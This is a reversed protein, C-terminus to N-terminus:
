CKAPTEMCWSEPLPEKQQSHELFVIRLRPDFVHVIAAEIGRVCGFCSTLTSQSITSNGMFMHGWNVIYNITTTAWISVGHTSTGTEGIIACVIEDQQKHSTHWCIVSAM